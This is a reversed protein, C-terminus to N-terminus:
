TSPCTNHDYPVRTSRDYSTVLYQWMSNSSGNTMASGTGHDIMTSAHIMIMTYVRIVIITHSSTSSCVVAQGLPICTGHTRLMSNPIIQVKCHSAEEKQAAIQAKLPNGWSTERNITFGKGFRMRRVRTRFGQIWVKLETTSSVNRLTAYQLKNM